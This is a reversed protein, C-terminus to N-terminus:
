PKPNYYSLSEPKAFFAAPTATESIRIAQFPVTNRLEGIERGEYAYWSISRPLVLGNVPTWDDYRIWKINDSPEGKGYTVTYGLWAMRRTQPDYHLFYEDEPSTGVGSEYAIRIGPYAVGQFELDPAESYVIGPDALVFPMAYFYFMLNHYFDPNGTYASGPDQLWTGQGDNGMSYAGADIRDWRNWLDITHTETVDGKPMEYILTRQRKWKDLGGHAELIATLAEPLGHIGAQPAQEQMVEKEPSPQATKDQKCAMFLTVLLIILTYKM